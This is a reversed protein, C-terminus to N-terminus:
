LISTAGLSAINPTSNDIGWDTVQGTAASVTVTLTNGTPPVHGPPTDPSVFHGHMEIIYVSSDGTTSTNLLGDVAKRTSAAYSIGTPKAEGMEASVGSAITKLATPAAAPSLPAGTPLQVATGCAGPTWVHLAAGVASGSSSQATLGVNGISGVDLNPSIGHWNWGTDAYQFNDSYANLAISSSTNESGTEAGGAWDGNATSTGVVSGARYVNWGGNGLWRFTVNTRGMTGASIYHGNNGGNPRNDEWFWMWGSPQGPAVYLKGAKVGEEVWYDSGAVNNNTSMWMEYNIFEAAANGVMICPVTLDTGVANLWVPNGNYLVGFETLAYCHGATSGPCPTPSASAPGAATLSATLVLASVAASTLKSRARM